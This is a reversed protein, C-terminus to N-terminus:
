VIDQVTGTVKSRIPIRGLDSIEEPDDVLKKLLINADEEDYPRQVILLPDGEEVHQGKKVLNYINTDKALVIPHNPCMLVIDSAMDESLKESIIASDEYGEDTNMIAVKAITGIDYALNDTAGVDRSFSTKDYALIEGAKFTKGPKLDTDLKLTVYFGSSSNKEVGEELNIYDKTGDSYEVLMREENVDVVKSNKDAKKAFINSIMYPLAENAATTILSPNSRRCRVYHKSTQVYTMATRFPDDRTTGFPTLAETMCLSKTTSIKSRDIN